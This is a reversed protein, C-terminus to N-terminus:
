FSVKMGVQWRRGFNRVFENEGNVQVGRRFTPNYVFYTGDNLLNFIEASLQLNLGKGLNLEKTAKVDVNWWSDNRQDNRAGTPYFQRLRRGNGGLNQTVPPLSDISIQQYLLSYPLGSQWSVATGLRVGWPTITTANLKVVHRQDYAQHGRTIEKTDETDGLRQFFDEGDGIAESWTYSANMEWSRYQRRVLELVYAEYDLSNINDLVFINGWFPNQIYQDPIGDPRQVRVSNQEGLPGPDDDILVETDGACDDERGDGPGPDTDKYLENTFPDELWDDPGSVGPSAVVPFPDQIGQIICRGFDGRALNDNRRQIQDRFKRNIYTVHLSTEAWLERDIALTFEDQYPTNLDRAVTYSSVSPQILGQLGAVTQNDVTEVRYVLDAQVPELEQLPIVLPIFNYHRGVSAKLATKGNSFPSWAVSLFPSFNTNNIDIDGARRKKALSAGKSDISQLVDFLCNGITDPGVGDCIVAQMQKTFLEYDEFGTFTDQWHAGQNVLEFEERAPILQHGESSIEERDVRVGATVTLNQRPKVQDEIYMSWNTGTARVDDTQPVALETLALGFSQPNNEDDDPNEDPTNVTFFFMEPRETLTRFYRENEAGFGLKLQHNMGWFRGGYITGKTSMTLRQRHDEIDFWFSGSIQGVNLDRCYAETVFDAINEGKSICSNGIGSVTPGLDVTTDTWAVKSELLIKPSYPATWTLTTTEGEFEERLSSEKPLFSSIGFGKIDSPDARYQLALKNRPSVQWTAQGDLTATEITITEIGSGTNVPEDVDRMEISARYWLKDKIVPGSLQFSPQISEFDPDPRDDFDNAGTGDIKSTRYYFEVVGEHTNSGQKQIINAFGGQARGFEVGAGATIVEMEEISNPNIQSMQRGTLPDVNSVGSVMAKFDRDRSGHVNPNGDGDADQVGPAMTLVNQYYRGPVPLDAIFNESFKTSTTTTELDIVERDAVVKVREQFEEIMQVPLQLTKNVSVRLDDQRIPSFGPFSVQITYGAGPRLVPFEVVGQADSISATTKVYSTVHSIEVTAGPLPAGEADTVVVKIGGRQAAVGTFACGVICIALALRILRM